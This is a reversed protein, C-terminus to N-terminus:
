SIRRSYKSNNKPMKQKADERRWVELTDKLWQENEMTLRVFADDELQNQKKTATEWDFTYYFKAM